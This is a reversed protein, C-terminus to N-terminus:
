PQRDANKRSRAWAGGIVGGATACAFTFFFQAYGDGFWEGGRFRIYILGLVSGIVLWVLWQM